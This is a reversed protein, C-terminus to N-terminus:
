SARAIGPLELLQISWLVTWSPLEGNREREPGRMGFYQFQDCDTDLAASIM